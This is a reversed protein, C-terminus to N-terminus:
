YVSPTEDLRYKRLFYGVRTIRLDNKIAWQLDM